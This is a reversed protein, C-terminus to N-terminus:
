QCKKEKKKKKQKTKKVERGEACWTTTHWLGIEKACGMHHIKKIASYEKGRSHIHVSHM